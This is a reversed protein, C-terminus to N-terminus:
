GNERRKKNTSREFLESLLVDITSPSRWQKGKHYAEIILEIKDTSLKCLNYLYTATLEPDQLKAVKLRERILEIVMGNHLRKEKDGLLHGYHHFLAQRYCVGSWALQEAILKKTWRAM